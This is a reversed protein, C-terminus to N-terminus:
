VLRAQDPPLPEVPDQSPQAYTLSPVIQVPVDLLKTYQKCASHDYAICRYTQVTKIMGKRPRHPPSILVRTMSTLVRQDQDTGALASFPALNSLLSSWGQLSKHLKDVLKAHAFSDATDKTIIKSGKGRANETLLHFSIDVIASQIRHGHDRPGDVVAFEIFVLPATHLWVTKDTASDQGLYWDIERLEPIAAVLRAELTQYAYTFM